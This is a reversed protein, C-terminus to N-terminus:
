KGSTRSAGFEVMAYAMTRYREELGKLAARRTRGTGLQLALGDGMSILLAAVHLSGAVDYKPSMGRIVRALEDTLTEYWEDFLRACEPDTSAFSLFDRWLAVYKADIMDQLTQKIIKDFVDHPTVGDGIVRKLEDLYVKIEPEMVARLVAVRTPFYYQLNSVSIGARLAVARLSFDMSGTELLLKRAMRVIANRTRLGQARLGETANAAAPMRSPQRKKTIRRVVPAKTTKTM